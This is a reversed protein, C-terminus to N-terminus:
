VNKLCLTLRKELSLSAVLNENSEMLKELNKSLRSLQDCPNKINNDVIVKGKLRATENVLDKKKM